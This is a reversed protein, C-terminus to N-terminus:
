LYYLSKEIGRVGKELPSKPRQLVDTGGQPLPNPPNLTLALFIFIYWM